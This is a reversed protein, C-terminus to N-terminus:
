LATRHEDAFLRLYHDYPDLQYLEFTIVGEAVMPLTALAAQADERAAAQIVLVAGRWDRSFYLQEFVGARMLRFAQLAEPTAHAAVQADSAGPCRRSMALFKM